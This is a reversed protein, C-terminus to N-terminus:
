VQPTVRGAEGGLPISGEGAQSKRVDVTFSGRFKIRTFSLYLRDFIHWRAFELVHACLSPSSERNRQSERHQVSGVVEGIGMGWSEDGYAFM